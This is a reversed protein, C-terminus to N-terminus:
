CFVILLPPMAYGNLSPHAKGAPICGRDGLGGPPRIETEREGEGM